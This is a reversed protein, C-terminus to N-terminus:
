KKKQRPACDQRNLQMPNRDFCIWGKKGIAYRPISTAGEGRLTQHRPPAIMLAFLSIATLLAARM